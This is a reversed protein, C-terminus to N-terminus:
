QKFSIPLSMNSRVVRNNIKGPIWKPYMKLVRVAEEGTGPGADRLIKFTSLTGDKEVVFTLYIKGTGNINKPISYNANVFSYFKNMGGQPNPMEDLSFTNFLGDYDIPIDESNKGIDVPAIEGVAMSHYDESNKKLTIPLTYSSRVIRGKLKGPIWNPAKKLVNIAKEGIDKPTNKVINFNSLSGDEEIVFLIAIEGRFKETKNQAAYEKNFFDFFSKMGNKPVPLVDLDSASYITHYQFTGREDFPLPMILKGVIKIEDDETETKTKRKKSEFEHGYCWSVPENDDENQSANDVIEIKDIKNKNGDKDACSFLTTGMSVFLALVFMKYYNTQSYLVRSPIQITITDLQSKRFRGCVSENQNQIFFHQIEEPMMATFDVVTKTCSLCFRGNENPTMKNWDEHCPEPITIKCKNEM